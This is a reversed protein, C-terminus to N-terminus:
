RRATAATATVAAAATATVATAAAAPSEVPLTVTKEELNLVSLAAPPHWQDSFLSDAATRGDYSVQALDVLTEFLAHLQAPSRAHAELREVMQPHASRYEASLWVLFPVDIEPRSVTPFGHGFDADGDDFLREGHDSFYILGARCGCRALRDIIASLNADTFYISNDYENVLRRQPGTLRRPPTSDDPFRDFAPPYREKYGFHSGEMHLFVAAKTGPPLGEIARDLRPLLNSDYRPTAAAGREDEAFSVHGAESAIRTIPNSELGSREQNSIWFTQFGAEGLLTVISKEAGAVSRTQPAARTLALPLSLITNTANSTMRPFLVLDNRMADLRPTTARPYGFLSWNRRRSTEGIVVVYIESAERAGPDLQHPNAFRFAARAAAQARATRWDVTLSVFAAAIDVPFATQAEALVTSRLADADRLRVAGLALSAFLMAAAILGLRRCAKWPLRFDGNWSAILAYIALLMVLTLGSTLAPHGALLELTERQSTEPVSRLLGPSVPGGYALRYFLELLIFFLALHLARRATAWRYICLAASIFGLSLGMVLLARHLEWLGGGMAADQGLPPAAPATLSGLIPIANPVLLALVAFAPGVAWVWSRSPSLSRM